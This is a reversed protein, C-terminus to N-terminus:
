AMELQLTAPKLITNWLLSPEFMQEAAAASSYSRVSFASEKSGRGLGTARGCYYLLKAGTCFNIFSM